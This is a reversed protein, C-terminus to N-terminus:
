ILGAAGSVNAVTRASLSHVRSLRALPTLLTVHKRDLKVTSSVFPTVVAASRGWPCNVEHYRCGGVEYFPFSLKNQGGAYNRKRGGGGM